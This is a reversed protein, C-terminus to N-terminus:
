CLVEYLRIPRAWAFRPLKASQWLSILKEDTTENGVEGLVEQKAGMMRNKVKGGGVDMQRTIM